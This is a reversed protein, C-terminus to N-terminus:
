FNDFAVVSELRSLQMFVYSRPGLVGHDLSCAADFTVVIIDCMAKKSSILVRSINVHCM